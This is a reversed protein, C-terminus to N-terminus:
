PDGAPTIQRLERSFRLGRYEHKKRRARKGLDEEIQM